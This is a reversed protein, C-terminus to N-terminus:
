KDGKLQHEGQKLEMNEKVKIDKSNILTEELGGIGHSSM